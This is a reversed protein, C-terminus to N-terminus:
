EDEWLIEFMAHGAKSKCLDHVRACKSEVWEIRICARHANARAQHNVADEVWTKIAGHDGHQANVLHEQGDHHPPGNGAHLKELFEPRPRLQARARTADHEGNRIREDTEMVEVGGDGVVLRQDHDCIIGSLQADCQRDDIASSRGDCRLLVFQPLMLCPLRILGGWM